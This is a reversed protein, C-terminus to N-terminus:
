SDSFRTAGRAPLQGTAAALSFAAMVLALTAALFAVEPSAAAETAIEGGEQQISVAGTSNNFTANTPSEVARRTEIEFSGVAVLGWVITSLIGGLREDVRRSISLYSAVFGVVLLLHWTTELM